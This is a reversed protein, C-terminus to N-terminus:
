GSHAPKLVLATRSPLYLSLFHKPTDATSEVLTLHTQHPPLHQHGGYQLADSNFIMQYKGPPAEFRYDPYSRDPHFNFALLLSAREFIIIEQDSHEHVRRIEASELLCHDKTLALMDRDFRALSQYKLNPDDVLHWQRRAYRFSWNNDQRPFDIWEPHGFENGMFNLYGNAATALTILRIMKHLAMGRDVSLSDDDIHMHDYMNTGILRFIITQDGVLAQDHSETYSITKEDARRNTLEYWLHGMLWDQDKVEKILKIWFDPVGM